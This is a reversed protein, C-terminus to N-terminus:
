GLAGTTRKFRIYRWRNYNVLVVIHTLVTKRRRIRMIVTPHVGLLLFM